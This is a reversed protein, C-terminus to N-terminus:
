KLIEEEFFISILLIPSLISEIYNKRQESNRHELERVYKSEYYNYVNLIRSLSNKCEIKNSLTNENIQNKLDIYVNVNKTLDEIDDYDDNDFDRKIERLTSNEFDELTQLIANKKVNIGQQNLIANLMGAVKKVEEKM